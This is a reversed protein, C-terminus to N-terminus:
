DEVRTRHSFMSSPDSLRDEAANRQAVEGFLIAIRELDSATDLRGDARASHSERHFRAALESARSFFSPQAM